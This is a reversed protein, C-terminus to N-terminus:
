PHFDTISNVALTIESNLLSGNSRGTDAFSAQDGTCAVVTLADSNGLGIDVYFQSTPVVTKITGAMTRDTNRTVAMTPM